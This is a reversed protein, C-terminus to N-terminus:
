HKEPFCNQAQYQLSQRTKKINEQIQLPTLMNRGTFELKYQSLLILQKKKGNESIFLPAFNQM